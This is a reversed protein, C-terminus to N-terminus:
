VNCLNSLIWFSLIQNGSQTEFGFGGITLCQSQYGRAKWTLGSSNTLLQRRLSRFDRLCDSNGYNGLDFMDCKLKYIEFM